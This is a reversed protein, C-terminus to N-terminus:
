INQIMDMKVQDAVMVFSVRCTCLLNPNSDRRRNSPTATVALPKIAGDVLVLVVVVVVVGIQELLPLLLLAMM